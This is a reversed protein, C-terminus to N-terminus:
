LLRNSSKSVSYIFLGVRGLPLGGGGRSETDVAAFTSGQGGFAAEEAEYAAGAGEHTLRLVDLM